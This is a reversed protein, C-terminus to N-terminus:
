MKFCKIVLIRAQRPVVANHETDLVYGHCHFFDEQGQQERQGGRQRRLRGRWMAATPIAAPAAVVAAIM